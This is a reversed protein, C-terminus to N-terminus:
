RRHRKRTPRKKKSRQKRKFQAQGSFLDMSSLQKAMKMKGFMGKGGLLGQSSFAKVMHRMRGFTKILESVDAPETGSGGAIRRRRSPDVMEPHDREAKTMSQVIAQTRDLEREDLAPMNQMQSGMGPLMKMIDKLPGMKRVAQFQQLLDDMTFRDSLLKEQMKQAQDADFHEQAKEVLGVVDGMGLIRGAMREPYFEELRDLKEGVGIFKIPKGTVAKISLAAGGRADGDMKSLIVGDLELQDNFEKASNVADQGTMADCVLYIQQPTVAKVINRLEAMLDSDIHLRGATDLIVVDQGASSAAKVAARCLAVADKSRRDCYVPVKIQQALIELQDVAAPRQLDAAVLLPRKGQAMVFKALKGATTTKGSGQLGALMIVTPGPSVYYIRSDVPGMLSTLEDNVIKVMVQGPHLSELIHAGIAKEVVSDCFEKVVTYNVDAELLARRVDGMAEAINARSIRGRGSLRRIAKSFRDTLTEFM